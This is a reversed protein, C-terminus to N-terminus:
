RMTCSLKEHGETALTALLFVDGFLAGLLLLHVKSLM